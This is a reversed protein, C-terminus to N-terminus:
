CPLELCQLLVRPATMNGTAIPNHVTGQAAILAHSSEYFADLCSEWVNGAMDVVGDPTNGAPFIGVPSAASLKTEEYNAREPDPPQNGWPYRRGDSGRCVAM